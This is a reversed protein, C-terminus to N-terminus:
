EGRLCKLCAGRVGGLDVGDILKSFFSEMNEIDRELFEVAHPHDVQVSQSVDIIYPKGRWIMINFPSLDAHVLRAKCVMREMQVKIDEYVVMLDREGLQQYAEMLLPARFGEEGLFEMVLVNGSLAIPKPVRVGSEHLRKLNRYEKRAWEYILRRFNRQPVREFRPDGVIYKRISHRFEATASLYIKVALDGDKGKAWYVRAEKGSSVVGKLELIVNRSELRYIHGLTFADFVEEVTKYMDVDKEREAEERMRKIWRVRRRM